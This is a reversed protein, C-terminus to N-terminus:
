LHFLNCNFELQACVCSAATNIYAEGKYYQARTKIAFTGLKILSHNLTMNLHLDYDGACGPQTSYVSESESLYRCKPM